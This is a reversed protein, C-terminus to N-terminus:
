KRRFGAKGMQAGDNGLGGAQEPGAAQKQQFVARGLSLGHALQQRRAVSKRADGGAAIQGPKLTASQGPFHLIVRM